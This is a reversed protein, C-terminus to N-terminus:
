IQKLKTTININSNRSIINPQYTLYKTLVFNQDVFNETLLLQSIGSLFLHRWSLKRTSLHYWLLIVMVPSHYQIILFLFCSLSIATQLTKIGLPASCLLTTVTTILYSYQGTAVGIYFVICDISLITSTAM